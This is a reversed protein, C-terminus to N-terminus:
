VPARQLVPSWVGEGGGGRGGGRGRGGGGGGGGQVFVSGVTDVFM